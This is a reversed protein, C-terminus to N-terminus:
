AKRSPPTPPPHTWLTRLSHPTLPSPANARRPSLFTRSFKPSSQPPLRMRPSYKSETAVEEYLDGEIRGTVKIGDQEPAIINAGLRTERAGFTLEEKDGGVKTTPFVFFSADGYATRASDYAADLKIYGYPKIQIGSAAKVLSPPQSAVSVLSTAAATKVDAVDAEQKVQKQELELVKKRLKETRSTMATLLIGM